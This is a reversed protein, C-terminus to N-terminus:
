GKMRGYVSFRSVRRLIIFKGFHVLGALVIQAVLGDCGWGRGSQGHPRPEASGGIRRGNGIDLVDRGLRGKTRAFVELVSVGAFVASISSGTPRRFGGVTARWRRRRRTNVALVCSVVGAVRVVLGVVVVLRRRRLDRGLM